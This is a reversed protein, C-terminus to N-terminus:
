KDKHDQPLQLGMLGLLNSAPGPLGEQSSFSGLLSKVLNVDVDVRSFEEEKEEEVKSTGEDKKLEKENANARVFSKDLTTRKLEQSLVDSYSNMFDMEEDEDDDDDEIDEDDDLDMDSDLEEDGNSPNMVSDIEKMFREVDLDVDESNRNGPVEAGEFSSMKQVFEQMSKAIDGLDYDNLDSSCSPGVGDEKNKKKNKKMDYFEMEQQRELLAANLEDEGNYLWSDDDSPPIEQNKFEDLSVNCDAIIDDIRKVPASMIESERSHLSSKKYYSEANEMLRKYEKSGSILGEFYGNRELSEKYVEWTSGKGQLKEQKKIQYIMEFGCAIKMGLEASTYGSESRAPMPYCKPAQFTQQMLQAYMARSMTVSVEVIEDSSKNPLFREMKAAYKMSDIDRDYFGEVALSILCPEHKLIQAILIPVRVRVKHMNKIAREPYDGIRNKIALQVSNPAKTQNEQKILYSLANDLTPNSPFHDKPIIHLNGNRIFIRNTTTEPNVWKPLHFASEILLFEGDTDWVHISLNPFKQSAQFLLFVIFWEDELNDGYRLKGHLHPIHNSPCFSCPSQTSPSFTFPEHQWIYNTTYQSLYQLIQLHLSQLHPSLLLTTKSNQSKPDPSLSSDPFITFFVTDEPLRSNKQSFIYSPDSESM